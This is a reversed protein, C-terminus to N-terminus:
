QCRAQLCGKSRQVLLITLINHSKAFFFFVSEDGDCLRGWEATLFDSVMISQGDGKPLPTAKHTNAIWHTKRFDNQYFISEDHTVLILRFLGGRSGGPVWFDNQPRHENGESDWTHFQREYERWRAVFANRYAVVDEREHGDLYMGKKVTGYQWSPQQLWYCATCETISIHSIGSCSLQEQMVSGSVIDVVDSATLYHGKGHSMLQAQLTQCIDEDDLVCWRSQGYHLVPLEGCCTFTLVWEWLKHAHKKGHKKVKSVMVSAQRWTLKLSTDLYLNLVGLMGAIHAQLLNDLWPDQSEMELM